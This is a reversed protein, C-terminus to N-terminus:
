FRVVIVRDKYLSWCAHRRESIAAQPIGPSDQKSQVSPSDRAVLILSDSAGNARTLHSTRAFAYSNNRQAQM